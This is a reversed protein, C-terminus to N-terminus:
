LGLQMKNNDASITLKFVRLIRKFITNLIVQELRELLLFQTVDQQVQFLLQAFLGRQLKLQLDAVLALLLQKHSREFICRFTLMRKGACFLRFFFIPEMECSRTIKDGQDLRVNGIRLLIQIAVMNHHLVRQLDHPPLQM